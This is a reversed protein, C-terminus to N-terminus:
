QHREDSDRWFQQIKEALLSNGASTKWDTRLDTESAGLRSCAGRKAFLISRWAKFRFYNKPIRRYCVCILRVVFWFNSM